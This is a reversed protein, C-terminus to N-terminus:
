TIEVHDIFDINQLHLEKLGRVAAVETKENKKEPDDAQDRPLPEEIEEEELLPNSCARLEIDGVERASDGKGSPPKRASTFASFPSYVNGEDEDAGM